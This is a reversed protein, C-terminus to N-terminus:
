NIMAANDSRACRGLQLGRDRASKEKAQAESIMGRPQKLTESTQGADCFYACGSFTACVEVGASATRQNRLDDVRRCNQARFEQIYVNGLGAQFVQKEM